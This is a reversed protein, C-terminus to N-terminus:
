KIWRYMNRKETKQYEFLRKDEYLCNMLLLGADLAAKGYAIADDCTVSKHHDFLVILPTNTWNEDDSGVLAGLFFWECDKQQCWCYVAGQLFSKILKEQEDTLWGVKKPPFDFDKIM